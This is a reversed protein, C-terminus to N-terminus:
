RKAPWPNARRRQAPPLLPEQGGHNRTIKSTELVKEKQQATPTGYDNIIICQPDARVVQEWSVSTWSQKLGAFVNTGSGMAILATPMALRGDDAAARDAVRVWPAARAGLWAAPVPWRSGAPLGTSAGLSAAHPLSAVLMVM